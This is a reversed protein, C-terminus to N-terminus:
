AIAYLEFPEYDVTMWSYLNDPNLCAISILSQNTIGHDFTLASITCGAASKSCWTGSGQSGIEQSTKSLGIASSVASPISSACGFVQSSAIACKTRTVLRVAEPNRKRNYSRFGKWTFAKFAQM